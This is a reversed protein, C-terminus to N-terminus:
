ARELGSYVACEAPYNAGPPPRFRAFRRDRERLHRTMEEGENGKKRAKGREATGRMGARVLKGRAIDSRSGFRALHTSM